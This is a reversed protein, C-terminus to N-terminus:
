IDSSRCLDRHWEEYIKEKCYEVYLNKEKQMTTIKIGVSSLFLPVAKQFASGGGSKSKLVYSNVYVPMTSYM